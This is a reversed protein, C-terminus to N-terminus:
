GSGADSLISDEAIDAFIQYAEDDLIVVNRGSRWATTGPVVINDVVLPDVEFTAVAMNLLQAPTLDTEVYEILIMLLVPVQEVGGRGQIESLVATMVRGHNLSRGLDGGPANARNRSFALAETGNIHQEGPFLNSFSKIDNMRYPVDLLFGGFEDILQQFGLFGTLLYGDLEVETLNTVTEVVVEPGRSAMTHTLKDMGGVEEDSEYTVEVWSDRPLGVISASGTAPITSLIHISDARHGAVKGGPRADSGIVLIQMPGDGYRAPEGLSSLRAGVIEWRSEEFQGVALVLDDGIVAVAIDTELIRGHHIVGELTLPDLIPTRAAFQTLLGVPINGYVPQGPNLAAEYVGVIAQHLANDPGGALNSTVVVVGPAAIATSRTTPPATTTTPEPELATSITTSQINPEASRGCSAAMMAIVVLIRVIHRM